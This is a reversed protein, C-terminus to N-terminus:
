IKELEILKHRSYQKISIVKYDPAEGQAVNVCVGDNEHLPVNGGYLMNLIYNLRNGYIEAQVKGGAPYIYASIPQAEGYSAYTAGENNKQSSFAKVYYDRANKVSPM